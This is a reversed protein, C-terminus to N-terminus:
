GVASGVRDRGTWEQYLPKQWVRYEGEQDDEKNIDCWKEVIFGLADRGHMQYPTGPYIVFKVSQSHSADVVTFEM